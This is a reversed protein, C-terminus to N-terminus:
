VTNTNNLHKECLLANAEGFMLIHAQVSINQGPFYSHLESKIKNLNNRKLGLGSWTRNTASFTVGICTKLFLLKKAVSKNM